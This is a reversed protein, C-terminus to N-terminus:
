LRDVKEILVDGNTIAAAIMYTGAEIRDPIIDIDFGKLVRRYERALM